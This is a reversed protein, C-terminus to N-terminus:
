PGPSGLMAQGPREGCPKVYTAGETRSLMLSPKENWGLSRDGLRRLLLGRVGMLYGPLPLCTAPSPSELVSWYRQAVRALSKELALGRSGQGDTVPAALAATQPGVALIRVLSLLSESPRAKEQLGRLNEGKSPNRGLGPRGSGMSGDRGGSSGGGDGGGGVLVAGRGM